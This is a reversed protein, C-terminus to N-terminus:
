DSLSTNTGLPPTLNNIIELANAHGVKELRVM